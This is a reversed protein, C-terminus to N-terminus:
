QELDSLKGAVPVKGLVKALVGLLTEATFPKALFSKVNGDFADLEGKHEIMGSSVIFLANPNIRMIARITAIGDMDPMILDTIVVAVNQRHQAYMAVAEVGDAATIAQYGNLELTQRMVHRVSTEDDVVLITENSGRPAITSHTMHLVLPDVDTAPIFIKFRSGQKVESYVHIFGGHSRVIGLATSLGL